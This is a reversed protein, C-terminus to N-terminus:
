RPAVVIHWDNTFEICDVEIGDPYMDWDISTADLEHPTEKLLMASYAHNLVFEGAVEISSADHVRKEFHGTLELLDMAARGEDFVFGAFHDAPADSAAARGNLGFTEALAPTQILQTYLANLMDVGLADKHPAFDNRFLHCVQKREPQTLLM